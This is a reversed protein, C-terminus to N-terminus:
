AKPNEGVFLVGITNYGCHCSVTCGAVTIDVNDFKYYDNVLGKVLELNEDSTGSHTIFIRHPRIDGRDKLKDTVYQALCKQFPGRYKKGVGMHSNNVEICPKIGLINAGLAVVASCRGGKALYKLNDLIFSADVRPIIDNNLADVIDKADMGQAAMEAAALVVHGQGTSLNKSDVVYVNDFDQAAICANQHSSSFGAGINIHIVADFDKSYQEFLDAYGAMNMAQTSCMAGGGDVHSYIDNPWINVGDQYEKGDKVVYLAITSIDFQELLEKSLDCTSDSTIKIKM